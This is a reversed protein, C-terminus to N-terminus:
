NQAQLQAQLEGQPEFYQGFGLGGQIQADSPHPWGLVLAGGPPFGYGPLQGLDLSQPEAVVPRGTLQPPQSPRRFQAQYESAKGSGHAPPNLSPSHSPPLTTESDEYHNPTPNTTHQGGSISTSSRSSPHRTPVTRQPNSMGGPASTGERHDLFRIRKRPKESQEAEIEELSHGGRAEETM